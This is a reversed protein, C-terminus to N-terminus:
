TTPGAIRANGALAEVLLEAGHGKWAVTRGGDRISVGGMLTSITSM